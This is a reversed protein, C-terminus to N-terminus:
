GMRLGGSGAWGGARRQKWVKAYAAAGVQAGEQTVQCLAAGELVYRDLSGRPDPVQMGEMGRVAPTGRSGVGVGWCQAVPPCFSTQAMGRRARLPASSLLHQAGPVRNPALTLEPSLEAPIPCGSGSMCPLTCVNVENTCLLRLGTLGTYDSENELYPCLPWFLPKGPGLHSLQGSVRSRM